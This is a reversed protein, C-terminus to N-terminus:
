PLRGESPTYTSHRWSAGALPRTEWDLSISYCDTSNPRLATVVTQGWGNAELADIWTPWNDVDIARGSEHNSSGPQAAATINCRGLDFWARLLYQQVVSRFASNIILDTDPNSAAAAQLDAIGQPSLYPLVAAGGFVINDEEAFTALEGPILCAMEDAIQQSLVLVVSTSCTSTLYDDVESAQTTQSLNPAAPEVCATALGALAVSAFLQRPM